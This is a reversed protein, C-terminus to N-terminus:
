SQIQQNWDFSELLQEIYTQQGLWLSGSKCDQVVSIGLIYHLPGMDMMKFRSALDEKMKRM